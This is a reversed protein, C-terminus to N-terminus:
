RKRKRSIARDLACTVIGLSAIVATDVRLVPPGLSVAQFKEERFTAAEMETWGREPGIALVVESVEGDLHDLIADLANTPPREDDIDFFFKGTSAKNEFSFRGLLERSLPEEVDVNVGISRIHKGQSMGELILPEYVKPNLVSSQNYEPDSLAARVIIIRHIGFSAVVPWLAKMRKPFALALILTVKPTSIEVSANNAPISDERIQLTIWRGNIAQLSAVGRSADVIGIELLDGVNKKLHKLIHKSRPDDLAIQITGRHVESQRILILNM